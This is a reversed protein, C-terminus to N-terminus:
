FLNDRKGEFLILCTFIKKETTVESSFYTEQHNKPGLCIYVTKQKKLIALTRFM